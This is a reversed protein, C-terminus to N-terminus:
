EIGKKLQEIMQRLNKYSKSNETVGCIEFHRRDECDSLYSSCIVCPNLKELLDEIAKNYIKDEYETLAKSCCEQCQTQTTCQCNYEPCYDSFYILRVLAERTM